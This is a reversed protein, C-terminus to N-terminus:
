QRRILVTLKTLVELKTLKARQKKQPPPLHAHLKAQLEAHPLARTRIRELVVQQHHVIMSKGEGLFREVFFLAEVPQDFVRPM